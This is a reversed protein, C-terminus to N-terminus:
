GSLSAHILLGVQRGPAAIEECEVLLPEVGGLEAKIFHRAGRRVEFVRLWPASDEDPSVRVSHLGPKLRIELPTSGVRRGDVFVDDGTSAEYGQATMRESTVKIIGSESAQAPDVHVEAVGGHAVFVQEEWPGFEENGVTVVHSGAAVSEVVCPTRGRMEGDVLVSLGRKAGSSVAIDGAFRVEMRMTDGAALEVDRMWEGLESHRVTVRHSGPTGSLVPSLADSSVVDADLLVEAGSPVSGLSLAGTLKGETVSNDSGRSGAGSLGHLRPGAWHVWLAYLLLAVTGAALLLSVGQVSFFRRSRREPRGNPLSSVVKGRATERPVVARTLEARLERYWEEDRVREESVTRAVRLIALAGGEPGFLSSTAEEASLEDESAERLLRLATDLRSSALVYSMGPYLTRKAMEVRVKLTQGLFSPEGVAEDTPLLREVASGKVQYAACDGVSAFHVTNEDRKFAVMSIQAASGRRRAAESFVKRHASQFFGVLSSKGSGGKGTLLTREFRKSLAERLWRVTKGREDGAVSVLCACEGGEDRLLFSRSEDTTHSRLTFEM